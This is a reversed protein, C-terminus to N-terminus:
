PRGDINLPIQIRHKLFNSKNFIRIQDFSLFNVYYVSGYRCLIILKFNYIKTGILGTQGFIKITHKLHTWVIDPLGIIALFSLASCESYQQSPSYAETVVVVELLECTSNIISM